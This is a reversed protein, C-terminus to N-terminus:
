RIMKKKSTFMGCIYTSEPSRSKCTDKKKVHRQWISNIIPSEAREREKEVEQSRCKSHRSRIKNKDKIFINKTGKCAFIILFNMLFSIDQSVIIM